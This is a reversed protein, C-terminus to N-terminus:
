HTGQANNNSNIKAQPRNNFNLSEPIRGNLLMQLQSYALWYDRQTDVYAQKLTLLDRKSNLLDFVSIQMANYSRQREELLRHQLPILVNKYHLVKEHAFKFAQMIVKITSRLEVATAYYNYRAQNLDAQSTLHKAQGMDFLPISFGISPGVEWENDTKEWNYGVDLEPILINGNKMGTGDVIIQIEQKALALNISNKIAQQWLGDFKFVMTEIQPLHSAIHWQISQKGWLGMSQNLQERHQMLLLKAEALDLRSSQALANQKLLKFDSVNGAKHLRETVLYMAQAAQNSKKLLEYKQKTAQLQYFIEQVKASLGLISASIKAQVYVLKSKAVRQRLPINFVKLFNLSIGLDLNVVDNSNQRPLLKTVHFV